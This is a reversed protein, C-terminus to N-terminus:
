FSMMDIVYVASGYQYGDEILPHKVFLDEGHFQPTETSRDVLNQYTKNTHLYNFVPKNQDNLLLVRDIQQFGALRFSLDSYVSADNSLIGKLLDHRLASNVTTSLSVALTERQKVDLWFAIGLSGFAIMFTVASIWIMLQVKISLKRWM